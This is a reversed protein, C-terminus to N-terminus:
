SSDRWGYQARMAAADFHRKWWEVAIHAVIAAIAWM